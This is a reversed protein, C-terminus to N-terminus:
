EEDKDEPCFYADPPEANDRECDAGCREHCDVCDAFDADGATPTNEALKECTDYAEQTTFQDQCATAGLLSMVVAVCGIIHQKAMVNTRM